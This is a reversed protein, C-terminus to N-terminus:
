GRTAIGPQDRDAPEAYCRRRIERQDSKWTPCEAHPWSARCQPRHTTDSKSTPGVYVLLREGPQAAIQKNM